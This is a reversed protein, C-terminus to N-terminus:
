HLLMKTSCTCKKYNFSKVTQIDIVKWLQKKLDALLKQAQGLKNLTQQDPNKAYEEKIRQQLNFCNSVITQFLV